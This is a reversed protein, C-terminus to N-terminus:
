GPNTTITIFFTPKGFHRALALSDAVQDSALAQSGIFTAPLRNRLLEPLINDTTQDLASSQMLRARRLYDLNTEKIRSYM